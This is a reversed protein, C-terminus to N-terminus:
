RVCELLVVGPADGPGGTALPHRATVRLGAADLEDSLEASSVTHVRSVFLENAVVEGARVTQRLISISRTGALPDLHEVMLHLAQDPGNEGTLLRIRETPRAARELHDTASLLFRGTPALHERVRAFLRARSPADLLTVSTAGLVVLDFSLDLSFSTMDGEVLRVEAGSRRAGDAALREGLIRLMEPASDLAVVDQGLARLPLTLRGSGCALDLVPGACGRAARLIERVESHDDRTIVDYLRSGEPSYIDRVPLHEGFVELIRAATGTPQVATTVAREREERREEGRQENGSKGASKAASNTASNM